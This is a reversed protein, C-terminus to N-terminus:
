LADAILPAFDFLPCKKLGLDNERFVIQDIIEDCRNGAIGFLASDLAHFTEEALNVVM